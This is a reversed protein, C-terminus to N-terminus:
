IPCEQGFCELAGGFFVVAIVSIVLRLITLTTLTTVTADLPSPTVGGAIGVATEHPGTITAITEDGWGCTRVLECASLPGPGALM